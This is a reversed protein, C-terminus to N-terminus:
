KNSENPEDSYFVLSDIEAEILDRDETIAWEKKAFDYQFVVLQKQYKYCRLILINNQIQADIDKLKLYNQTYDAIEESVGIYNKRGWELNEATMFDYPNQQLSSGDLWIRRIGLREQFYNIRYIISDYENFIHKLIEPSVERYYEPSKDFIVRDLLRQQGNNFAMWLKKVYYRNKNKYLITDNYTYYLSDISIIQADSLHIVFSLLITFIIKNM